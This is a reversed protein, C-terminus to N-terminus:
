QWNSEHFLNKKEYEDLFQQLPQAIVSHNRVHDRFYNALGLLSRLQKMTTPLPFGTVKDLKEEQFKMGTADIQHGVFKTSSM